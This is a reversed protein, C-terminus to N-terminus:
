WAAEASSNQSAIVNIPGRALIDQHKVLCRAFGVPAVSRLPNLFDREKGSAGDAAIQDNRLTFQQYGGIVLENGKSLHVRRGLVAVFLFLFLWISSAHMESASM